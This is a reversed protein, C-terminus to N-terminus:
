GEQSATQMVKGLVAGATAAALASEELNAIRAALEDVERLGAFASLCDILLKGTDVDVEGQAVAYLVQQAQATLPAEPNLDFQVRIGEARKPPQVRELVLRGAATDGELAKAIMAKAVDESAADLAIAVKTRKNLSGKPRGPGAKNGFKFLHDTSM